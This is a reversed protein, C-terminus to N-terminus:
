CSLLAHVVAALPRTSVLELLVRDTTFPYEVVTQKPPRAQLADQAAAAPQQHQQQQQALKLRDQWLQRTVPTYAGVFLGDEPTQQLSTSFPRRATLQEAVTFLAPLCNSALLQRSLRRLSM